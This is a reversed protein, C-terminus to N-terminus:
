NKLPRRYATNLKQILEKLKSKYGHCYKSTSEEVKAEQKEAVSYCTRPYLEEYSVQDFYFFVSVCINHSMYGELYLASCHVKICEQIQITVLPPIYSSFYGKPFGLPSARPIEWPSLSYKM